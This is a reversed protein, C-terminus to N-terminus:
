SLLATRDWLPVCFTPCAPAFHRQTASGKQRSDFTTRIMGTPEGQSFCYLTKVPALRALDGGKGLAAQFSFFFPSTM